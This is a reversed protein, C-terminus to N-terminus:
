VNLTNIKTYLYFILIYKPIFPQYKLNLIELCQIIKLVDDSENNVDQQFKFLKVYSLTKIYM